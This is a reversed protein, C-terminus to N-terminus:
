LQDEAYIGASIVASGVIMRGYLIPVPNGQAQTNVPGNFNYSAGNDPSDKTALGTQQPSLMQAVGGLLLAAGFQFGYASLPNGPAFYSGIASAAIIVAGLITSFLGGSKAGQLVPAIRIDDDGVPYHLASEDINRKGVFVAYTVGRDKSGVLESEFGPLLVCLARTAEAASAVALRHLRGFRAGLKGYLRINRIKESM